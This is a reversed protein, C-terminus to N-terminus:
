NPLNSAGDARLTELCLTPIVYFKRHLTQFTRQHRCSLCAVVCGTVTGDSNTQPAAVHLKNLVLQIDM